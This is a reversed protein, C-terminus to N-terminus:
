IEQACLVAQTFKAKENQNQTYLDLQSSWLPVNETEEKEKQGRGTFFQKVMVM